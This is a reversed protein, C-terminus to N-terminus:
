ATTLGACALELPSWDGVTCGAAVCVCLGSRDGVPGRGSGEASRVLDAVGVGAGCRVTRCDGVAVGDGALTGAVDVGALTGAVDV